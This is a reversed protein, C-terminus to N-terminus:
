IDDYKGNSTGAGATAPQPKAAAKAPKSAAQKPAAAKSTQGAPPQGQGPLNDKERVVGILAAIEENIPIHAFKEEAVDHIHWAAADVAKKKKGTPQGTRDKEEYEREQLEVIAQCGMFNAAFDLTVPRGQQKAAAFDEKSLMRTALAVRLLNRQTNKEKEEDGTNSALWLKSHFKKGVETGPSLIEWKVDILGDKEECDVVQCHYVGAAPMGGGKTVDEPSDFDDLSIDIAM